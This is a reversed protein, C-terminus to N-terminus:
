KKGGPRSNGFTPPPMGFGGGHRIRPAGRIPLVGRMGIVHAWVTALKRSPAFIPVNAYPRKFAGDQITLPEARAGSAGFRVDARKM